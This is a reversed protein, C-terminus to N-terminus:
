GARTKSIKSQTRRRRRGEAADTKATSELVGRLAQELRSIRTEHSGSDKNEIAEKLKMQMLTQYGVGLKAAEAKYAHQLSLPIFMSIRVKVNEPRFDESSLLSEKNRKIEKSKM